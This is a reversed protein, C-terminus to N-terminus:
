RGSPGPIGKWSLLRLYDEYLATWVREQRFHRLVRERGAQGHRRCLGPDRLYRGTAEALASADRPPVLTGTVGDVVADVCGTVRTAVVPLEMAAAELPVNPFGERYTPLALVDMLAYTPPMDGLFGTSVIREDRE